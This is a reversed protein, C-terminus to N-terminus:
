QGIIVHTAAGVYETEETWSVEMQGSISQGGNEVYAQGDAGVGKFVLPVVAGGGNLKVNNLVIQGGRMPGDYASFGHVLVAPVQFEESEGGVVELMGGNAILNGASVEVGVAYMGKGNGSKVYVKADGEMTLNGRVSIGYGIYSGANAGDDISFYDAGFVNLNGEGRFTLNGNTNIGDRGRDGSIKNNSGPALEITLSAYENVEVSGIDANNLVLVSKGDVQKFEVGALKEDDIMQGRYLNTCHYGEKDWITISDAERTNEGISEFKLGTRYAYDEAYSNTYGKITIGSEARITMNQIDNVTVPIQVTKVQKADTFTYAEIKIVPLGDDDTDPIVVDEATGNYKMLVAGTTDKRFVFERDKKDEEELQEVKEHADKIKDGTDKEAEKKNCATLCLVMCMVLTIFLLKRKM